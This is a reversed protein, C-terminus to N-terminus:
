GPLTKETVGFNGLLEGDLIGTGALGERGNVHVILEVPGPPPLPTVWYISRFWGGSFSGLGEQTTIRPGALQGGSPDQFLDPEGYPGSGYRMEIWTMSDYEHPGRAFEAPPKRRHSDFLILLSFEFGTPFLMIGGASVALEPERILMLDVPVVVPIIDNPPTPRYARPTM